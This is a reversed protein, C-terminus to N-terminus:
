VVWPLPWGRHDNAPNQWGSALDHGVREMMGGGRGGRLSGGDGWLAGQRQRDRGAALLTGGEKEMSDEGVLLM